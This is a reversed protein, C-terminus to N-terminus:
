WKSQLTSKKPEDDCNESGAKSHRPEEDCNEAQEASSESLLVPEKGSGGNEPQFKITVAGM